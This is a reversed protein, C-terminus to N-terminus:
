FYFFVSFFMIFACAIAVIWSEFVIADVEKQPKTSPVSLQYAAIEGPTPMSERMERPIEYKMFVSGGYHKLSVIMLTILFLVHLLMIISCFDFAIDFYVDSMLVTWSMMNVVFFVLGMSWSANFDLRLYRLSVITVISGILATAVLFVPLSETMFAASDVMGGTCSIIGTSALFVLIFGGAGFRYAVAGRKLLAFYMVLLLFGNIPFNVIAIEPSYDWPTAYPNARVPTATLVTAVLGLYTSFRLSGGLGRPAM